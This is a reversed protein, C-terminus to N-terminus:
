YDQVNSFSKDVAEKFEECGQKYAKMLESITNKGEEPIWPSQDIFMNMMKEGQEQFTEMTKFSNDFATKQFDMMQKFFVNQEM